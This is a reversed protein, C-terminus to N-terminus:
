LESLWKDASFNGAGSILLTLSMAFLALNFEYGHGIGESCAWNLFFGHQLHVKAVAVVMVIALGLAAVRTLLGLAVGIGGFFETVMALVTLPMPIALTQDFYAITAEFGAGGFWGFLKQAGHAIFVAGLGLRLFILGRSEITNFIKGLLM